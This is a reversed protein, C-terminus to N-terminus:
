RCRRRRRRRRPRRGILEIRRDAAVVDRDHADGHWMVVRNTDNTSTNKTTITDIATEEYPTAFHRNPRVSAAADGARRYSADRLFRDREDNNLTSATLQEYKDDWYRM